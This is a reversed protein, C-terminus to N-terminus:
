HHDHSMGWTMKDGHRKFGLRCFPSLLRKKASVEPGGLAACSSNISHFVSLFTKKQKKKM